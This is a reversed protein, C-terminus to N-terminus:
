PRGGERYVWRLEEELEESTTVTQAVLDALVARFRRKAHMLYNSVDSASIRYKGAVDGYEVTEEGGLFYDRFVAFYVQKGDANLDQELRDVARAFLERRWLEDMLEDPTEGASDPIEIPASDAAGADISILRKSGGRKTAKDMRDRDTLYHDLAVKLFTRFRGRNRDVRSLFGTELMWTFFDQTRDKADENTRSWKKRIYAYVPKWYTRALQEFVGRSREPDGTWLDLFDGWVTSPFERVGGGMETDGSQAM